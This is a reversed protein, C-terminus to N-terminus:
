HEQALQQELLKLQEEKLKILQDADAHQAKLTKEQEALQEQLDALRAQEEKALSANEPIPATLIDDTVLPKSQTAHNAEVASAEQLNIESAATEETSAESTPQSSAESAVTDYVPALEEVPSTFWQYAFFLAVLVCLGGIIGILLKPSNRQDEAM